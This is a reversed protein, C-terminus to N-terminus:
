NHCDSGLAAHHAIAAWPATATGTIMAAARRAGRPTRGGAAASSLGGGGVVRQM